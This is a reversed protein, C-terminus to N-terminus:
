EIGDWFDILYIEKGNEEKREKVKGEVYFLDNLCKVVVFIGVVLVKFDFDKDVVIVIIDNLDYVILFGGDFYVGIMNELVVYIYGLDYLKMNILVRVFVWRGFVFQDELVLVCIVFM